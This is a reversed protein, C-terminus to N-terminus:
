THPSTPRVSRPLPARARVRDPRRIRSREALVYLGAACFFGAVFGIDSGGLARAIPGVYFASSSFLLLTVPTVIAWIV